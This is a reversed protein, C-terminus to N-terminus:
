IGFVFSLDGSTLVGFDHLIPLGLLAFSLPGLTLNLTVYLACFLALAVDVTTLYPKKTM